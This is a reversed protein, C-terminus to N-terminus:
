ATGVLSCHPDRDRFPDLGHGRTIALCGGCVARLDCAACAAAGARYRAAEEGDYVAAIGQTLVNGIPSPFKRCAHAEGDPLLALFNFGAGCGFGCCGGFPELGRRRLEIGILNDKYGMIPNKQAAEVYQQVFGAYEERSPLQLAAGEGVPSLRNYTFFDTKGRLLEALPLVQDLNDRTLTLMVASPIGLERLVDLFLMVRDFYGAGRIHDNHERLGELSVQYMDPRLIGCLPEVRERPAANGLISLTFGRQASERYIDLFGPHLLPNGGTLCVHGAVGRRACFDGLQDLVRRAQEVTVAARNSRDYCHRCHLDCAHTIHWQLVFSRAAVFEEPTRKGQPLLATDRRIRSPPALLLGRAAARRVAMDVAATPIRGAVAAQAYPIDEVVVKIALLDDGTAASLSTEGTVPDRWVLAWEEGREPPVKGRSAVTACLKWSLHLAELTPNAELAVVEGFPAAETAVRHMTWELRALDPLFEPLEPIGAVGEPGTEKALAASARRWEGSDLLARCTPYIENLNL